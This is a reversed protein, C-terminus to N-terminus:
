RWRSPTDGIVLIACAQVTKLGLEAARALLADSESGPNLYVEAANSEKIAPLLGIGVRPPVYMLVRDIPGPVESISSYAKLGEIEPENPNVPFVENGQSAYSRLAKNGYKQRDNSAGIIAVRM